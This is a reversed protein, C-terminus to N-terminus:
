RTAHAKYLLVVRAPVSERAKLRQVEQEMEQVLGQLQNLEAATTDIEAATVHIRQLRQVASELHGTQEKIKADLVDLKAGLLALKEARGTAPGENRQLVEWDVEARIKEEVLKDVREQLLSVSRHQLEKLVTLAPRGAADIQDLLRQVEDKLEQMRKQQTECQKQLSELRERGEVKVGAKIEQLYVDVVADVIAVSKDAPFGRLGVKMVEARNPFEVVLRRELTAVPDDADDLVARTNKDLTQIAKTLVYPSKVLAVQSEKFIALERVDATGGDHVPKV